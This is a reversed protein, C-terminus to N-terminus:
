KEIFKLCVPKSMAIRKGSDKLMGTATNIDLIQIENDDRCAVLMKTGDPSIVFNRPHIGTPQYGIRTLTGDAEDVAFVVIGDGKLRTSAYVFRGDPSIHIDASGHANLTDAKVTQKEKLVGNEWDFVIVDGSLETLLYMLKGNPHFAFHRPGSGAKVGVETRSNVMVRPAFADTTLPYVYLKDCGLDSAVLWKGDPAVQASHLHPAIQRVRDKGHGSFGMVAEMNLTGDDAAHFVTMSGGLYNATIVRKGAADISIYCPAGGESSVSSVLALSDNEFRISNATATDGADEGAAYIYKGAADPALYSPNSIGKLGCVYQAEATDEDFRFVKVGEVEPAAYSGAVLYLAKEPQPVVAETRSKEGGTCGALVLAAACVLVSKGINM